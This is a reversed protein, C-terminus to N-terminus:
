TVVFASNYLAHLNWYAISWHYVRLTKHPKHVFSSSIRAHNGLGRNTTTDGVGFDGRNLTDPIYVCVYHCANGLIGNTSLLQLSLLHVLQGRLKIVYPFPPPPLHAQTPLLSSSPPVRSSVVFSCACILICLM